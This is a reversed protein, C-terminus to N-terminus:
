IGQGSLFDDDFKYTRVILANKLITASFVKQSTQLEIDLTFDFNFNKINNPVFVGFTLWSM